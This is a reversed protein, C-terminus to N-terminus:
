KLLTLKLTRTRSPTTVRVFYTGSAVATGDGARGDWELMRDDGAVGSWLERVRRGAVDYITVAARERGAGHVHIVTAPNFPNPYATVRLGSAAPASPVGTLAEPVVYGEDVAFPVDRERCRVRDVGTDLIRFLAEARDLHVTDGSFECSGIGDNLSAYETGGIVLMRGRAM